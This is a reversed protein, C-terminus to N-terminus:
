IFARYYKAIPHDPYLTEVIMNNVCMTDHTDMLINYMMENNYPRPTNGPINGALVMKGNYLIQHWISVTTEKDPVNFDMLNKRLVVIRTSPNNNETLAVIRKGNITNKRPSIKEINILGQDTEVKAGATFCVTTNPM